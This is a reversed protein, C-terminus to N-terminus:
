EATSREKAITVVRGKAYNRKHMLRRMAPRVPAEIKFDPYLEDLLDFTRHTLRGGREWPHVWVWRLVWHGAVQRMGIAGAIVPVMRLIEASRILYVPSEPGEDGASYPPFDFGTERRFYHAVTEAVDQRQATNVPYLMWASTYEADTIIPYRITKEDVGRSEAEIEDATPLDAPEFPRELM